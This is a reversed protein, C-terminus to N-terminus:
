QPRTNARKLDIKPPLVSIFQKYRTENTVPTTIIIRNKAIFNNINTIRESSGPHTQFLKVLNSPDGGSLKSLTQLFGSLAQTSYGLKSALMVGTEDAQKEQSRSFGNLILNLSLSAIIQVLASDGQRLAGEALGQAAMARRITSVTHKNESHGVEHALVSALEAENKIYKLSETTIFVAGGPITFANVVPSDLVYFQYNVENKRVANKVVQVGVSRVYSILAPNATYEKFKSAVQRMMQQGIQAEDRPTIQTLYAASANIAGQAARSIIESNTLGCSSTGIMSATIFTLAALSFKNNKIM